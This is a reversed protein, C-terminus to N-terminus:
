LTCQGGVCAVEQGTKTTDTKDYHKFMEWDVSSPSSAVLAAYEDATIAEYPAQEYKHDDYPLFALGTIEDFHEYVWAGAKMWDDKSIYITCSVTHSAWNKKVHLWHELQEIAGLTGAFITAEEPAKQPFTLVMDRKNQKSEEAPIGNAVLFQTMPDTKSQRLTRKYYPAWRPHIGSATDYLEGSNGAPKVSTVCTSARIGIDAAIKKNTEWAVAQLERLWQASEDSTTSLVPHDYFGTLCVGLLREAEVQTKWVKRLYAFDSVCAQWTGLITAQEVKRKLDDLTDEARIAAATLNCMQFPRLQIECCNGTIVGALHFCHTEDYVTIDWVDERLDTLEISKIPRNLPEGSGIIAEQKRTHTLPFLTSFRALSGREKISVIYAEYARDYTKGNPFSPSINERHKISASIGYFGLLDRVDEALRKHATTLRVYGNKEVDGDSSFLGDILGRRFDESATTWVSAPLGHSKHAVNFTEWRQRLANNNVSIEGSAPFTGSWKVREALYKSLRGRIGHEADEEAVIFGYQRGGDRETIWGDGINWGVAFGDEVDGDSGFPLADSVSPPLLDGAKLRETRVKRAYDGTVVPWEHEATAYFVQGNHMTVAYLPKGKGSLFCKAESYEGHLNPVRFRKDELQEIPFIGSDTLVRTGARLSPNAGWMIPSGDSDTNSRNHAEANQRFAERNFIGPEGFGGKMLDGWFAFFTQMDPKDEFVASINAMGYHANPGPHWVGNADCIYMNSNAGKANRMEIDDLDFLAITASRRVGGVVVIQAVYTALSFVEIPRLRRGKAKEFVGITHKFLDELPAPGSAYGGFTKLRAGAPRVRSVDWKPIVGGGLLALLKNYAKCWGERSDAVVITDDVKDFSDPVEPLKNVFRREVSFGVGGGSMLIYMMEPLSRMSDIPVFSCNYNAVQVHKLANGAVMLARMSPMIDLSNMAKELAARQDPPVEYEHNEKLFETFFDFYRGTTEPWHERRGEAEIWKAYRTKHVVQQYLSMTM